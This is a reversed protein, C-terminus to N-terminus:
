SFRPCRRNTLIDRVTSVSWRARGTPTRIVLSQLMTAVGYLSSPEQEYSAFIQQVVAAEEELLLMQHVFNRALRDPATVLVCDLPAQRALDRLRDLGPRNRTAGSFGDDRFIRDQDLAWGQARVYGCLRELQQEISQTLAQRQTSVRAYIAVRM